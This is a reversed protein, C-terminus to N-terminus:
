LHLFSIFPAMSGMYYYVIKKKIKLLNSDKTPKVLGLADIVGTLEQPLYRFKLIFLFLTLAPISCYKLWAHSLHHFINSFMFLFSSYSTYSLTVPFWFLDIINSSLSKLSFFVWQIHFLLSCRRKAIDVLDRMGQEVIQWLMHTQMNM